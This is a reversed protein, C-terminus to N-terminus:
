FHFLIEMLAGAISTIVNRHITSAATNKKMMVCWFIWSSGQLLHSWLIIVAFFETQFLWGFSVLWVLTQRKSKRKSFDKGSRFRKVLGQITLRGDWGGLLCYISFFSILSVRQLLLKIKESPLFYLTTLLDTGRHKYTEPASPLCPCIKRVLGDNQQLLVRPILSYISVPWSMM